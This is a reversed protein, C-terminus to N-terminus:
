FATTGTPMERKDVCMNNKYFARALFMSGKTSGTLLRWVDPPFPIRQRTSFYLQQETNMSFFSGPSSMRTYYNPTHSVGQRELLQAAFEVLKDIHTVCLDIRGQPIGMFKGLAVTVKAPNQMLEEYRLLLKPGNFALFAETNESITKFATDDSSMHWRKIINLTKLESSIAEAPNRVIYIMFDWGSKFLEKTRREYRAQM